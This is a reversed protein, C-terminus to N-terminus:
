RRGDPRELCVTRNARRSSPARVTEPEVAVVQTPLGELAAAVGAMLGGGGVAVVVTDVPQSAQELLELAHTGSARWSAAVSRWCLLTDSTPVSVNAPRRSM